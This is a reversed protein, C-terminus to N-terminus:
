EKLSFMIVRMLYFLIAFDYYRSQAMTSTSPTKEDKGQSVTM